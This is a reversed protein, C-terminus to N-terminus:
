CNATLLSYHPIIENKKAWKENNKQIKAKTTKTISILLRLIEKCDKIISDYEASTLLNTEKLLDLWYETEACEKLSITIKVLFEKKSVSYQAETLNAGISQSGKPDRMSLFSKHAAIWGSLLTGSRLLQQALTFERKEECLYKYLNYIRIAFKRSKELAINMNYLIHM